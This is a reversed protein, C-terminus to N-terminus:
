LNMYGYGVATKAGIGHESLAKKLYEFAVDLPKRGEFKGKQIPTNNREKIGLIFKFPTEKVTLFYIPNPNQYDTPPKNGGYYDPYHVNMVDPEIKPPEIPLADFFIVSGQRSEKYISDKPCGFIDCFGPDQLAEKEADKLNLSGDKNKGFLETIIYSRVVGKIASGPIYPIGYIYHLTISTEYVSENGLGVILRWDPRLLLENSLKLNLKKISGYHAKSINEILEKSINAKIRYKIGRRDTKFFEFKGKKSDHRNRKEFRAAKNLKLAFNDIDKIDTLAERTDDPLRTKRIDLSDPIGVRPTNNNRGRNHVDRHHEKDFERRFTKSSFQKKPLEEGDVIIKKIQGKERTVECEKGNLSDDKFVYFSPVPMIKGNIEIQGRYGKKFKQIILKGRESMKM